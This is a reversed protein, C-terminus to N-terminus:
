GIYVNNEIELALSKIREEYRIDKCFKKVCEVYNEYNQELGIIAEEFKENSIGIKEEECLKKLPPNETAIIPTGEFLSEFVKGSACYTNNICDRKFASVSAKGKQFLYKLTARDVFGIYSIRDQGIKKALEEFKAKDVEQAVGAVILKFKPELNGVARALEYTQRDEAIGGAYIIVFDEPQKFYQGYKRECSEYDIADDIRHINGFVYPLKNLSYERQMISARELNAAIVMDAKKLYRKELQVFYWAIITKPRTWKPKYDIYLESSDYVIPLDKFKRKIWLLLPMCYDDHLIVLDPQEKLITQKAGKIFKFYDRKGGGTQVSKCGCDAKSYSVFTAEGLQMACRLIDQTRAETKYDHYAVFVIKKKKKEQM